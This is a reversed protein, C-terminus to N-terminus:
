RRTLLVYQASVKQHLDQLNQNRLQVAYRDVYLYCINDSTKTVGQSEYTLAVCSVRDTLKAPANTAQQDKKPERWREWVKKAQEATSTRFVVADGFGILEVGDKQWQALMEADPDNFLSLAGRGTSFGDPITRVPHEPDSPLTRSLIGMPDLAVHELKDKPTPVFKDLLPLQVALAREVQSTLAPLDPASTEDEVKIFVVYRDHVTWSGISSVTPRWHAFTKPYKTIAVPENDRNFTFDDHELTPGVKDATAADPFELVALHLKRHKDQENPQTSWTNLWGAVLDEAVEDFTDNIVLRGLGKRNLVIQTPPVLTDRYRNDLQYTPDVEFPLAVYDALRQAEFARAQNMSKANGVERPKVQYNGVDFASADPQDRTPAGQIATGGCATLMTATLVAAALRVGRYLKM